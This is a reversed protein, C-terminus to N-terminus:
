VHARGIQELQVFLKTEIGYENLLGWAGCSGRYWGDALEATIINAGSKILETVDYTQYQIRKTYDTHGPALVFNGARGGNIKVEYLGCATVYLRAKKVGAANFAKQFCDVPYRRKKDVRYDGAIWQAQWDAPSLLGMEFCAAESPEGEKGEEDWLTVTWEVRQRSCLPRPYAARMSSSNVKGSDWVTKGDSVAVIRYATQKKGGECNWLLRPDNIDIGMPDKLYETRLNIAKM